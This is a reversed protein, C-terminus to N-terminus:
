NVLFILRKELSNLNYVKVELRGDKEFEFKSDPHLAITDMTYNFCHLYIPWESPDSWNSVCIIFFVSFSILVTMQPLSWMVLTEVTFFLLLLPMDRKKMVLPSMGKIPHIKRNVIQM